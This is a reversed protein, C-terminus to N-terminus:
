LRSLRQLVGQVVGGSLTPLREEVLSAFTQFARLDSGVRVVYGNRDWLVLSARLRSYEVKAIQSWQLSTRRGWLPQRTVSDETVIIRGWAHIASPITVVFLVASIAAIGLPQDVNIYSTVQPLSFLLIGEAFTVPLLTEFARNGPGYGLIMEGSQGFRPQAKSLSLEATRAIRAIILGATTGCFLAIFIIYGM